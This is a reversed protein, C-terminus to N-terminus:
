PLPVGPLSVVGLRELIEAAEGDLDDITPCCTAAMARLTLAVEFQVKLERAIRLSEGFHPRGEEPQRAQHHAYGISREILAEVGGVPSKAAAERCENAVTLAEQHRGEFVLCEALRANAEVKFREASLEEFIGLADDFLTHAEEFHGARANARGLNSMAVGVGFAWGSARAVRLLEDFLPLAEGIRGQDSLIEAENNVVIVAGVVDGSREKAARSERYYALSETWRGEYYAHIGLNSLVVGLGRVDGLEEYIPRALELYRLGDASGFDSHAADLLYYAHALTRRDGARDAHEAAAELWRIAEQNNTQRYHIAGTSLEITARTADRDFSEEAEELRALGRASAEFADAFGGIHEHLLVEKGLLRADALVSEAGVLARAAEIAVLSRDYAAFLECVDGLNEYVRALDRADLKPLNAGAAIAREYLEAAVVNAFTAQAREGAAHAYTWAKDYAQAEFYHLSLLADNEGGRGELASAVRCHIDRRRAFSLGEYATARVLDHRFAYTMDGAYGVFERLWEWRSPDGADPIEDELIEAIFDLEFTPGVVAAYRLLMRNEPDLTDIRTTLLSEISEPLTELRDGARAANVLERVFLPNGGSRETLAALMESSLAVEDAMSLALAAARDAGLPELSIRQAPGALHVSTEVGPRTTVCVLWPRPASRQTLRLMLSRSSDDLWHADEFVFLTPMMLIRELFNEVTELTKERSAAPDLADAEPTAMVEADFPIALLPLWPALDPMVGTVFPSLLAGAQERTSDPTIGALQRLLNRWAYFPTSSAYQEAAASLQTFGLALTHLEQVLRSKGIGPEGVLEVVQLQRMRATNVAAHLLELEHERGVIPTADAGAEERSGIPAGVHHATVAREKGKVLLPEKETAYITRARDLVDGTALIEGAQARATLRAALNVADGMVAYTRRAANGIDGTFVHGRNVGARLPLGVDTTVIDRLARLMGEEDQGSSAPAGGTLYLKVANVDIDSELWTVGYTACADGVAGALADIRELLGSPGEAKVVDDTQSLKVFAVTAQRHEAEGSSVALHARLPEPVFSALQTGAIDPPPPITSAGPELRRMVFAGEREDGIWDPDVAAATEASLVIEGATALDELEFVRTAGPGAVLLERHPSSALFFHCEGSHVGASMRLEVDETIMSEITWQMDSAAGAARQPHRNERFLLLLADGRFKLVDGGHGEAVDILGDFCASIRQVLEEAGAKGKASLREALATFGSIDVSVLSGDITRARPLGPEASWARVLRPLYPTLLEDSRAADEGHVRTTVGM